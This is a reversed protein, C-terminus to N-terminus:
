SPRARREDCDDAAQLAAIEGQGHALEIAAPWSAPYRQNNRLVRALSHEEPDGVQCRTCLSHPTGALKAKEVVHVRRLQNRKQEAELSLNPSGLNQTQAHSATSLSVLTLAVLALFARSKAV